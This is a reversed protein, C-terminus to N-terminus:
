RIDGAGTGPTDLVALACAALYEQFTLHWFRIEHGRGVIIGSDLEEEALFREAAPAREAVPLSSWRHAIQKAAWLRPVQTQRGGEADQMALALDELRELTLKDSLRGPKRERSRALWTMISEYLDVRQEPMRKENWYVVALATLMVPNSRSM